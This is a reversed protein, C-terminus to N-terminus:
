IGYHRQVGIVRGQISYDASSGSESAGAESPEPTLEIPDFDPNAPLLRKKGNPLIELRKVTAEGDLLAVVIQGHEAQQQQRIIVYDGDLIGADRMSEGQVRLAYLPAQSSAWRGGLTASHVTKSPPPMVSLTGLRQEIAELPHGAPVSGLIPISWPVADSSPTSPIPRLSRALGPEKQLYGKRILAQVHDQVTGVAEYGCGLAIDRYTPSRGTEVLTTEIFALVRAQKESLPPLQPPVPSALKQAM